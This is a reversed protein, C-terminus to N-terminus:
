KKRLRFLWLRTRQLLYEAAHLLQGPHLSAIPFWVGASEHGIAECLHDDHVHRSEVPLVVIESKDTALKQAIHSSQDDINLWLLRLRLCHEDATDPDFVLLVANHAKIPGVPRMGLIALVYVEIAPAQVHAVILPQRGIDVAFLRVQDASRVM